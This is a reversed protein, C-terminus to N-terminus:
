EFRFSPYKDVLGTLFSIVNTAYRYYRVMFDFLFGPWRKMVIISVLGAFHIFIVGLSLVTLLIVHPLAVLFIGILSLRLFALLRSYRLPFIINFQLPNDIEKRGAFSPAREFIDSANSAISLAYRLSNEQIETFDDLSNGSFLIVLGNLMGLIWSLLSYVSSVLFHPILVIYYLGFLRLLAGTRSYKLSYDISFNVCGSPVVDRGEEDLTEMEKRYKGIDERTEIDLFETSEKPTLRSRASAPEREIPFEELESMATGEAGTEDALLIGGSALEKELEEIKLDPAIEDISLKLDEDGEDFSGVPVAEESVLEDMTLGADELTLREDEDVTEGAKFEEVEELPLDLSDLDITIDSDEEMDLPDKKKPKEAASGSTKARPAPEEEELQIDLTDLDITISEDVDAADRSFIEDTKIDSELGDIGPFELKKEATSVGRPERQKETSPEELLFDEELPIFEGSGDSAAPKRSPKSEAKELFDLDELEDMTMDDLGANEKKDAQRDATPPELLDDLYSDKEGTTIDNINPSDQKAGARLAPKAMDIGGERDGMELIDSFDDHQSRREMPGAGAGNKLGADEAFHEDLMPEMSVNPEHALAKMRNDIVVETGCKPCSFGFKKNTVKNDAVSYAANCSTCRIIM